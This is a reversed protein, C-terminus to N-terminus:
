RLSQAVGEGEVVHVEGEVEVEDPGAEAHAAGDVEDEAASM